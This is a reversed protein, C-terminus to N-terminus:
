PLPLSPSGSGVLTLVAYVLFSFVGAGIGIFWMLREQSRARATAKEKESALDKAEQVARERAAAADAISAEEIKKLRSEITKLSLNMAEESAFTRTLDNVTQRWENMAALRATLVSDGQALALAILKHSEEHGHWREDDLRAQANEQADVYDRWSVRANATPEPDNSSKSGGGGGSGGSAKMAIV